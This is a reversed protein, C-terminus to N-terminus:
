RPRWLVAVRGKRNWASGVIWGEDNIGAAGSSDYGDPLVLEQVATLGGADDVTWRVAKRGNRTAMEGVIVNRNSMAVVLAAGGLDIPAAYNNPHWLVARRAGDPATSWGAVRRRDDIGTAHTSGRGGLTGLAVPNNYGDGNRTWLYPPSFHGRCENAVIDGNSNIAPYLQMAPCGLDFPESYGGATGPNWVVTRWDSDASQGFSRGVVTGNGNIAIAQTGTHAPLAPLWAVQDTALDYVFGNAEVGAIKGRGNIDRAWNFQESGSGLLDRMGASETWVFARRQGEANTAEGAVVAANNIAQALGSTGGLTGLTVVDYAVGGTDGKKGQGAANQVLADQPAHVTQEKCGAVLLFLSGLLMIATRAEGPLERQM